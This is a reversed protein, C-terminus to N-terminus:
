DTLVKMVSEVVEVEGSEDIGTASDNDDGCAIVAVPDDGVGFWPCVGGSVSSDLSSTKGEGEPAVM